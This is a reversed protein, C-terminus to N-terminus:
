YDSHHNAIDHLKIQYSITYQYFFQMLVKGVLKINFFSECHYDNEM